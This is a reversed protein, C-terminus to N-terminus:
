QRCFQLDFWVYWYFRKLRNAKFCDFRPLSMISWAVDLIVFGAAVCICFSFVVCLKSSIMLHVVCTLVM